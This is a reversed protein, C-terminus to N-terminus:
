PGSRESPPTIQEHRGAQLTSPGHRWTNKLARQGPSTRTKFRRSTLLAIATAAHVAITMITRVSAAIKEERLLASLADGMAWATQTEPQFM